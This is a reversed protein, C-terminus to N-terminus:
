VCTYLSLLFLFLPPTAPRSPRPTSSSSIYFWCHSINLSPHYSLSLSPSPAVYLIYGFFLCRSSSYLSYSMSLSYLLWLFVFFLVSLVLLCNIPCVSLIYCFLFCVILVLLCHIPCLSYLLWLFCVILVLLCHIPCLSYVFVGWVSLVLLCHIPCLSFIYIVFFLGFVVVVFCVALALLCHVPQSLCHASNGAKCFSWQQYQRRNGKNFPIRVRLKVQQLSSSIVLRSYLSPLRSTSAFVPLGGIKNLTKLDKVRETSATRSRLM